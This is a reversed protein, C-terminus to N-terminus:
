TSAKGTGGDRVVGTIESIWTRALRREEAFEHENGQLLFTELDKTAQGKDEKIELNIFGLCFHFQYKDPENELLWCLFEEVQAILSPDVPLRMARRYCQIAKKLEGTYAHLFALNYLWTGDPARKCKRLVSMAGKVDRDHLFLFISRLLLLAYTNTGSPHIRGLCRGMEAIEAADHTKGWRRLAMSARAQNIEALRIPVRQKLKAFVPFSRDKGELLREVDKQLEEAYDLDGSVASAIGIVYRAVCDIWESTFAFSFVDNETSILLRRPLLESFEKALKDSIARPQPKHAVAGELHLVHRQRGGISRLRVRGFIMFHARCRVRVEQADDQDVIKRAIHEPVDILQFSQGSVGRKVLEHLTLVFDEMIKKQEEENGASISIVFGVKDHRTKPLRNSRWWVAYTAVGIVPYAVTGILASSKIVFLVGSTFGLSLMEALLLGFYTHWNKRASEALQTLSDSPNAM